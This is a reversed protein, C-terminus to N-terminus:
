FIKETMQRDYSSFMDQPANESILHLDGCRKNFEEELGPEQLLPLVPINNYMAYKFETERASNPETLFKKTVPVVFLKILSFVEEMEEPTPPSNTDTGNRYYIACDSIKLISSSISDFYDEFDDRHCCFFVRPKGQPSSRARTKYKCQLM